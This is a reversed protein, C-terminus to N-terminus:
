PAGAGFLTMARAFAGIGVQSGSIRGAFDDATVHIGGALRSQGALDAADYYTAWQMLVDTSPGREFTLSANAPARVEGLGGPVFPSGTFRTLVEAAARSFTSHGSTYSAFAPTVFTPKQYPMWEVGRIWHVGAPPATPDAPPGAYARIAIEGEHGALAEHRGGPVTTEATVVEVLVPELVIGDPAYSPGDPDSSQGRGALYRIM